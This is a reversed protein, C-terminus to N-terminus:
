RNRMGNATNAREERVIPVVTVEDHIVIDADDIGTRINYNIHDIGPVPASRTPRLHSAQMQAYLFHIDYSLADRGIERVSADM